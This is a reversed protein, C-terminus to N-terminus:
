AGEVLLWEALAGFSSFRRDAGEGGGFGWDVYIFPVGCERAASQDGPADGVLVPSALANRDVIFKLNEAKTLGTNGWCEFDRFHKDMGNRGLFAEIYGAQCNSVIFLPLRRSM